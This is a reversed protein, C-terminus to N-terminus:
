TVTGGDDGGEGPYLECFIANWGIVAAEEEDGWAYSDGCLTFPTM